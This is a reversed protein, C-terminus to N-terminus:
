RLEMLSPCDQTQSHLDPDFRRQDVLHLPGGGIVEM